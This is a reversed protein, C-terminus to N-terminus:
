RVPRKAQLNSTSTSRRREARRGGCGRSGGGRRVSAKLCEKARSAISKGDVEGAECKRVEQREFPQETIGQEAAVHGITRGGGAAVAGEGRAGGLGLRARTRRMEVGITIGGGGGEGLVTVQLM